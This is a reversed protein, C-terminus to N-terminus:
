PRRQGRRPVGQSGQAVERRARPGGSRQQGSVVPARRGAAAWLDAVEPPQLPRSQGPTLDGIPLSGMRTRVLRLVDLGVAACMRRAQRNRGERLALTIWAAGDGPHAVGQGDQAVGKPRRPLLRVGEAHALGDSLAVGTELRLLQGPDPRPSVLACYVRAVGHRPHLLAHTLAGDNTLLLLGESDTDLRGVPYLRADTDPVLDVVTPRGRADSAASVVGVPKYVLLIAQAEPRVVRGDVRVVQGPRVRTAPESVTQGDITVRGAAIYDAEARRRAAVGAHALYKQLRTGM